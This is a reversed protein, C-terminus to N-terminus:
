IRKKLTLQFVAKMYEAFVKLFGSNGDGDLRKGNVAPFQLVEVKNLQLYYFFRIGYDGFGWFIKDFDLNDLTTKKIAFYGYLSDTIMGGTCLRTFINFIWSLTHRLRTDMAGGYLFRSASVCDYHKINDVMFPLYKPQHNFDSDMVLIVNGKANEIGCRISNAFGRDETRLIPNVFEYNLDVIAQYTGDPSNDDAVVIEHNYDVLNEHIAKILLIVNGKENYTPLIVSVLIDKGSLNM